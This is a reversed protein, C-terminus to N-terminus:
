IQLYIFKHTHIFTSFTNQTNTYVYLSMFAATCVSQHVTMLMCCHHACDTICNKNRLSFSFRKVMKVRGHDNRYNKEIKVGGGRQHDKM